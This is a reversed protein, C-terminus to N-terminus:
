AVRKFNFMDAERALTGRFTMGKRKFTVRNGSASVSVDDSVLTGIFTHVHRKNRDFYFSSGMGVKCNEDLGKIEAESLCANHKEAKEPTVDMKGHEADHIGHEKFNMLYGICQNTGAITILSGKNELQITNM